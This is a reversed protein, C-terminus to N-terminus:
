KLLLQEEETALGEIALKRTSTDIHTFEITIVRKGFTKKIKEPWEIIMINKGEYLLSPLGFTEIEKEQDLRYLDVHYLTDIDTGITYSSVVIFTPSTIPQALGFATGVGQVFTTKGSGLDGQLLLVTHPRLILAVKQAIAKTEEPSHSLIDM